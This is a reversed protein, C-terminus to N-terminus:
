LGPGLNGLYDGVQTSYGGKGLSENINQAIPAKVFKSKSQLFCNSGQM